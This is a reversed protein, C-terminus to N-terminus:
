KQSSQLEIAELSKGSTEEVKILVFVMYGINILGYAWFCSHIGIADEVIPYLQINIYNCSWFFVTAIAMGLARSRNPFVEAIYVWVVPGVTASFFAVYLLITILAWPGDFLELYFIIGSIVLTVSLGLSGVWLMKKRGVKDVLWIAVVTFLLNTIGITMSQGLALHLGSGTSQFIVTAFNMIMNIGSFQQFVVVAVALLTVNRLGPKFFDSLKADSVVLTKKAEEIIKSARIKGMYSALLSLAKEEKGKKLLWRPSEPLFFLLLLFLLAPIAESGFMWRWGTDINWQQDGQYSVILNVFHVVVIGIVIAFQYLSILRGRYKTPAVEAIYPPSITSAIGLGIGGVLRALAFVWLSNAIASGIASVLFLIAALILSKQRGYVEGIRGALAAGMICGIVASAAAWGEGVAGLEFKEKLLVIAGSIVGLDYGFLLGGLAAVGSIFIIKVFNYAENSEKKDSDNM